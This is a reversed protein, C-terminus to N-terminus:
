GRGINRGKKTSSSDNRVEICCMRSAAASGTCRSRHLRLHRRGHLARQVRRHDGPQRSSRSGHVRRRLAGDRNFCAGLQWPRDTDALARRSATSRRSCPAAVQESGDISCLPSGDHFPRHIEEFRPTRDPETLNCNAPVRTGDSMEPMCDHAEFPGTATSSSGATASCSSRRTSRERFGAPLGEAGIDYAIHREMEAPAIGLGRLASPVSRGAHECCLVFPSRGEANVTEVPPPDRLSLTTTEAERPQLM